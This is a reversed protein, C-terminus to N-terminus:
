GNKVSEKIEAVRTTINDMAEQLNEINVELTKDVFAIIDEVLATKDDETYENVKDRVTQAFAKAGYSYGAVFAKNLQVKLAAEVEPQITMVHSKM